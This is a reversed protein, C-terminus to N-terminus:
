HRSKQNGPAPPPPPVVGEFRGMEALPPPPAPPVVGEYSSKESASRAGGAVPNPIATKGGGRSVGERGGGHMPNAGGAAGLEGSGAKYIEGLEVGATENETGIALPRDNSRGWGLSDRLGSLVAYVSTGTETRDRGGGADLSRDRRVFQAVVGSGLFIAFLLVNLGILLGGLYKGDYGEGEGTDDESGSCVGGGEKRKMVFAILMVFFVQVSGLVAM